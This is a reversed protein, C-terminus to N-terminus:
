FPLFFHNNKRIKKGKKKLVSFTYITSPFQDHTVIAKEIDIDIGLILPHFREYNEM